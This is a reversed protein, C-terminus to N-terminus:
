LGYARTRGGSVRSSTRSRNAATSGGSGISSMGSNNGGTSTAPGDRSRGIDQYQKQVAKIGAARKKAMQTPSGGGGSGTGPPTMFGFAADSSGVQPIVAGPAVSLGSAPPVGYGPFANIIPPKGTKQADLIQELISDEDDEDYTSPFTLDGQVDPGTFQYKPDKKYEEALIDKTKTRAGSFLDQAQDILDLRNELVSTDEGRARKKAITKEITARRKDFTADTVKAANYGAMIGEATNYDNTVVRGIDDLMVGSGLLENELKARPNVPMMDKLSDLGRGLISNKLYGQIMGPIGDMPPAYYLDPNPGVTEGFKETNRMARNYAYPSYNDITRTRNPDPNYVSFGDGGGTAVNTNIIGQVPQTPQTPQTPTSGIPPITSPFIPDISPLGQRLYKMALDYLTAM